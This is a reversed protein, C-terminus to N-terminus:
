LAYEGRTGRPPHEPTYISTYPTIYPSHGARRARCSPHIQIDSSAFAKPSSAADIIMCARARTHTNYVHSHTIAITTTTTTTTM